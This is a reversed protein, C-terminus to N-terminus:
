RGTGRVWAPPYIGDVIAKHRAVLPGNSRPDNLSLVRETAKGIWTLGRVLLLGDTLVFHEDWRDRRPHFLPHVRQGVRGSVRNRKSGNCHPCTWAFNDLHHVERDSERPKTLLSGDLYARWQSVPIVHDVEFRIRTPMLCYECADRARTQVILRVDPDLPDHLAERSLRELMRQFAPSEFM